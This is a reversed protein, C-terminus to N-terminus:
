VEEIGLRIERLPHHSESRHMDLPDAQHRAYECQGAAVSLLIERRTFAIANPPDGGTRRRWGRRGALRSRM